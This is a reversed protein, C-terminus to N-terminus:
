EILASTCLKKVEEHQPSCVSKICDGFDKTLTKTDRISDDLLEEFDSWIEKGLVAIDEILYTLCRLRGLLSNNEMCQAADDRVKEVKAVMSDIQKDQNERLSSIQSTFQDYCKTVTDQGETSANYLVERLGVSCRPTAHDGLNTVNLCELSLQLEDEVKKIADSIVDELRKQFDRITDLTKRVFSDIVNLLRDILIFNVSPAESPRGRSLNPEITAFTTSVVLVGITFLLLVKMNFM